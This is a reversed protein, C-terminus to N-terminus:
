IDYHRVTFFVSCRRCFTYIYLSVDDDNDDNSHDHCDNTASPVEEASYCIGLHNDSVSINSFSLQSSRCSTILIKLRSMSSSFNNRNEFVMDAISFCWRRLPVENGSLSGSGTNINAAIILSVNVGIILTINSSIDINLLVIASDLKKFDILRWTDLTANGVLSSDVHVDWAMASSIHINWSVYMNRSSTYIHIDASTDVHIDLM